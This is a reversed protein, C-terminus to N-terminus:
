GGTGAEREPDLRSLRYQQSQVLWDSKSDGPPVQQWPTPTRSEWGPFDSAALRTMPSPFLATFIEPTPFPCVVATSSNPDMGWGSPLPRPEGAVQSSSLARRCRSVLCAPIQSSGSHSSWGAALSPKLSHSHQWAAGLVDCQHPLAQSCRRSGPAPLPAPLEAPVVPAVTVLPRGWVVPRTTGRIGRSHRTLSCCPIPRGTATRDGKGFAGVPRPHCSSGWQM